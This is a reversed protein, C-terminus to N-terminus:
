LKAEDLLAEVFGVADAQTIDDPQGFLFEAVRRPGISESTEFDERLYNLARATIEDNHLPTVENAISPIGDGYNRLMYFLDYADKNEGRIRFALSKLVVFAGAGCVHIERTASEGMITKGTLQIVHKNVFALHLGPAIIAAWDKALPFLTGAKAESDGVPEILFDVTVPPSAIRWRLRTAIGADNEDPEFGASRLRDVVEHYREDNVMAFALGLDLDMTGVHTSSGIPLSQQDILLTPVLGGIVVLEPMLDGLKTALYLCTSKVRDVQGFDYGDATGPKIAM